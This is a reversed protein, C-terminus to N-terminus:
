IQREKENQAEKVRETYGEKGCRVGWRARRQEKTTAGQKMRIIM